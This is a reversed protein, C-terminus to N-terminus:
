SPHSHSQQSPNSHHSQAPNSPSRHDSNEENIREEILNHIQLSRQSKKESPSISLNLKPSREQEHADISNNQEEEKKGSSRQLSQPKSILSSEKSNISRIAEEHPDRDSEGEHESEGKTHNNLVEIRDELHLEPQQPSPAHLPLSKSPAPQLPPPSDSQSHNDPSVESVEQKEAISENIEPIIPDHRSPKERSTKLSDKLRFESPASAMEEKSDRIELLLKKNTEDLSGLEAKEEERQLREARQRLIEEVLHDTSDQNDTPDHQTTPQMYLSANSIASINDPIFGLENKM